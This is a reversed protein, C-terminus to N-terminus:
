ALEEATAVRAADALRILVRALAQVPQGNGGSEAWAGGAGDRWAYVDLHAWPISRVFSEIFLAATIAGGFGGEASNMMDAFPSKLQSRYPQFLPMRWMLDGCELAADTMHAALSDSNSFLGAIEAGLGVKIAGTLTAVNIVYAPKNEDTQTVAVDIADALVLRGEADTNSIEITAGNRATIIDGPRFALSGLANEALSLYADLPLPLATREAWKMVAVVAASGGMDKKMLRMGSAPKLDLGGSDFTVGKGVLAIPKAGALSQKPRYRLHVFRSTENAAAGVACLLGMREEKLKDGQWIDIKVTSSDAFIDKINAAYTRPNLADAPLNVYHRALNVGLGLVGAAEIDAPGSLGVRLLLELPKRRPKDARSVTEKFSYSAIELGTLAAGEEEITLGHFELILKETQYNTLQPVVAGVLDRLRALASKDLGSSHV